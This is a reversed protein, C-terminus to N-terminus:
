ASHWWGLSPGSFPCASLLGLLLLWPCSSLWPPLNCLGLVSPTELLLSHDTADQFTISADCLHGFTWM